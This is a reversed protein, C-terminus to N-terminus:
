RNLVEDRWRRVSFETFPEGDFIIEKVPKKGDESERRLWERVEMWRIEGKSNRIVLMVPFAQDMWYRLHREKPVAFVDSDDRKRHRLHSDGSKLQLYLKKGTAEGADNRFEIEGDIGHDSNTYGRYIQNASAVITYCHGVLILETSENEVKLKSVDENKRASEKVALSEFKAEIPDRLPIPNQCKPCYVVCIETGSLLEDILERDSFLRGCGAKACYYNRLRQVNQAHEHLHNDIYRLFLVRSDDTVNANFYIELDAAGEPRHTLAFGLDAGTQTIFDAAFRWLQAADFATTHHLRVVLTAYIEDVSGDFRYTVLVSPHGPQEKRERKFYSPFTLLVGDDGQQRLCWARSVLMEHLARLVIKEDDEHIRQFDQYDLAGSLLADERICGLGGPYKRVKRVLAAAYRSLIEPRLLIVDGFDLRQVIGPGELLGVVNELQALTFAQGALAMDMQQRLAAISILIMGSDRLQLIEMKMRRFLEPTSTTPIGGWDIAAVIADQLQGCGEGTKASTEHLPEQFGRAEMFPRMRERSVTLGGRDIRGAALLKAFPRGTARHLDRDWQGLGEFPNENQPNFVLVAAATDKMFIQHVLRYDVQGAFDWLWIEREVGDSKEAVHLKCQTAWAGDTSSNNEDDQIGLALYRALGTKGVGSDGVLLVKANTYQVQDERSLIKEPTQRLIRRSGEVVGTKWIRLVGNVSASFILEADRSFAVSIVSNSHGRLVDLCDGYKLSWLRVTGDDSGSLALEGNPSYAVCNVRDAHGELVRICSGESLNWLRMTGDDAGSLAWEGKPSFAVSNVSGTHEDMAHLCNGNKIQWLRLSQDRAGSLVFEATPSFAVSNVSDTHGRFVRGGMQDTLKWVRVTADDEGSAAFLGDPSIAVSNVWGHAEDMHVSNGTELDWLVVAADGAGSLISLGDPSCAVCNVSNTHESFVEVCNMSELNWKVRTRNSTSYNWNTVVNM